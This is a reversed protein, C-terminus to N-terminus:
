ASITTTSCRSPWRSPRAWWRPPTARRRGDGGRDADLAAQRARRGAARLGGAAARGGGRAPPRAREGQKAQVQALIRARRPGLGAGRHARHDAAALRQLAARGAGSRRAAAAARVTPSASASRPSRSAGCCTCTATGPASGTRPRRPAASTSRSTRGSCRSSRRSLGQRGPLVRGAHDFPRAETWVRRLVDSTSTPAATARTTTSRLRRRAGPRRRQRRHHHPARARGGSSSTSRPRRARPWRPRSSAPGTRSASLRAARHARRRVGVVLFGDASTSTYGVLVKDFGAREHAQSFDRVWAMDIEGGIVHVAAGDAGEPRVGIMGIFEIAM